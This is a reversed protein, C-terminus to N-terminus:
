SRAAQKERPTVYELNELNNNAKVGDKHNVQKGTPCPGIFAEAVLRHVLKQRKSLNV